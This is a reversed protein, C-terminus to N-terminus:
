GAFNAGFELQLTRRHATRRADAGGLSLEVSRFSQERADSHTQKSPCPIHATAARRTSIPHSRRSAQSGCRLTIADM